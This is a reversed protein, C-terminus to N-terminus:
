WDQCLSCLALLGAPYGTSYWNTVPTVSQPFLPNIGTNGARSASAQGSPWQSPWCDVSPNPPLTFNASVIFEFLSGRVKETTVVAPSVRLIEFDLHTGRRYFLTFHRMSFVSIGLDQVTQIPFLEITTKHRMPQYPQNLVLQSFLRGASSLRVSVM